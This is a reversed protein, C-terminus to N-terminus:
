SRSATSNGRYAQAFVLLWSWADEVIERRPVQSLEKANLIDERRPRPALAMGRTETRIDVSRAEKM